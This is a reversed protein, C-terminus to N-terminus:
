RSAVIRPRPLEAIADLEILQEVSEAQERWAPSLKRSGALEVALEPRSEVIEGNIFLQQSEGEGLIALRASSALSLAHGAVLHRMAQDSDTLTPEGQWLRWSTLMQGMVQGLAQDDLTLCDALLTRARALAGADILAPLTPDPRMIGLRETQNRSEVLSEALFFLMEPGSPTRLGVSWTQCSGVAVGHHAIGAPLYLVDGATALVETEAEWSALIAMEFRDDLRQDFDAALQWLRQGEAQVLFVDYADVHAGVSGGDVAQSIMVDDIMWDPLFRFQALIEAVEPKAKDMEQVLLTWDSETRPMDGYELPGHALMWNAEEQKGSVLRVPLDHNRALDLMEGLAQPPPKLWGQILCPKRQWYRDLFTEAEFGTLRDLKM